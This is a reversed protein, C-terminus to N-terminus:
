NLLISKRFAASLASGLSAWVKLHPLIDCFHFIGIIISQAWYIWMITLLSWDFALALIITILNTALLAKDTKDSLQFIKPLPHSITTM